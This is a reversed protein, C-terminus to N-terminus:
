EENHTQKVKLISSFNIQVYIDFGIVCLTVVLMIGFVGFICKSVEIKRLGKQHTILEMIILMLSLQLNLDCMRQVFLVVEQGPLSVLAYQLVILCSLVYSNIVLIHDRFDITSLDQLNQHKLWKEKRYIKFIAYSFLSFVIIGVIM